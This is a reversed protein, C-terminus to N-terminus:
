VPIMSDCRVHSDLEETYINLVRLLKATDDNKEFLLVLSLFTGWTMPHKKTEIRMVTYRSSGIRQALDEQSLRLGARLMPLYEAMREILVERNEAMEFVKIVDKAQHSVVEMSKDIVSVLRQASQRGIEPNISFPTYSRKQRKLGM